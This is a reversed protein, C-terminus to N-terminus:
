LAGKRALYTDRITRWNSWAAPQLAGAGAPFIPGSPFEEEAREFAVALGPVLEDALHDPLQDTLWDILMLRERDDLRAVATALDSPTPTFATAM